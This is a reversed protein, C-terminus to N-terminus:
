VQLTTQKYRRTKNKHKKNLELIGGAFSLLIGVAMFPMWITIISDAIHLNGIMFILTTLMVSVGVFFFLNSVFAVRNNKISKTIM